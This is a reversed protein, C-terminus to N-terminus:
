IKQNEREKSHEKLNGREIINKKRNAETNRKIQNQILELIIKKRRIKDKL